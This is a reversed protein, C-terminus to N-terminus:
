FWGRPAQKIGYLAKELKCVYDKNESLLFGKPQEIYVEEKLKGNMFASKADMQYVKFKKHCSLALFIRTAELRAVHAYMEELDIGEM